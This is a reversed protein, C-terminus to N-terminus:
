FKDVKKKKAKEFKKQRQGGAGASQTKSHALNKRAFNV